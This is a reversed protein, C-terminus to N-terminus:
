GRSGPHGPAPHSRAVAPQERLESLEIYNCFSLLRGKNNIVINLSKGLPNDLVKDVHNALFMKFSGPKTGGPGHRLHKVIERLIEKDDSLTALKDLLPKINEGAGTEKTHWFHSSRKDVHAKYKKIAENVAQKYKSDQDEEPNDFPIRHELAYDKFPDRHGAPNYAIHDPLEYLPTMALGGELGVENANKESLNARSVFTKAALYKRDPGVDNRYFAYQSGFFQQDSHPKMGSRINNEKLVTEVQTVLNFNNEVSREGDCYLTIGKGAANSSEDSHKYEYENHLIKFQRIPPDQGTLIPILLSAARSFDDPHISFHIKWNKCEPHPLITPRASESHLFLIWVANSIDRQVRYFPDAPQELGVVDDLAGDSHLRKSVFGSGTENCLEDYGSDNFVNPMDIEIDIDYFITKYNSYLM